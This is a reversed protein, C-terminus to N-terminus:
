DNETEEEIVVKIKAELGTALSIAIEYSGLHHLPEDLEIKKKDIQFDVLRSLEAAIDASTVAGHLRGKAGARAKFYLEKEELREILEGLEEQQRAQRQAREESQTKAAKIAAPTAPVAVGQPFLFNRAYGDAVERTEGKKGKALVDKLFVVKM